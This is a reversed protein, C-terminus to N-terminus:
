ATIETENWYTLSITCGTEPIDQDVDITVSTTGGSISVNVSKFKTLTDGVLWKHERRSFYTAERIGETVIYIYSGLQCVSAIGNGYSYGSYSVNTISKANDLIAKLIARNSTTANYLQLSFTYKNLTTGGGSEGLKHYATDYLYIVGQTFTDTTAGTHRYYTNATPTFGSASLDQNIVPINALENYDSVGAGGGSELTGIFSVDVTTVGVPLATVQAMAGFTSAATSILIDKVLIGRNQPRTVQSIEATTISESLEGSYLLTANGDKGNAGQGGPAGKEGQAYITAKRRVTVQQTDPRIEEIIGNMIQSTNPSVYLCIDNIQPPRNYVDLETIFSSQYAALTVSKSYTLAPLGTEGKDGTAGTAGQPGTAGTAGRFNTATEVSFTTESVATIVAYYVNSFLVVDGKGVTSGEPVVITDLAYEQTGEQYTASSQYVQYQPNAKLYAEVRHFAELLTENTNLHSPNYGIM